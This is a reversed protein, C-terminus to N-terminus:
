TREQVTHKINFIIGTEVELFFFFSKDFYIKIDIERKRKKKHIIIFVFQDSETFQTKFTRTKRPTIHYDSKPASILWKIQTYVGAM